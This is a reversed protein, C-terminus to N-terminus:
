QGSAAPLDKVGVAILDIREVPVLVFEAEQRPEGYRDASLKADALRVVPLASDEIRLGMMVGNVASGSRLWVTVRKGDLEQIWGAQAQAAAGQAPPVPEKKERAMDLSGGNQGGRRKRRPTRKGSEERSELVLVVQEAIDPAAVAGLGLLTLIGVALSGVPTLTAVLQALWDRSVLLQRLLARTDDPVTPTQGLVIGGTILEHQERLQQELQPDAELYRPVIALSVKQGTTAMHAAVALGVAVDPADWPSIAAAFVVVPALTQRQEVCAQAHRGETASRPKKTGCAMPLRPLQSQQAPDNPIEFLSLRSAYRPDGTPLCSTGDQQSLVKIVEFRAAGTAPAHQSWSGITAQVLRERTPDLSTFLLPADHAMACQAAELMIQQSADAPTTVVSQPITLWFRSADVATEVLTEGGVRTFGAAVPRSRLSIVGFVLVIVASIVIAFRGLLKLLASHRTLWNDATDAL